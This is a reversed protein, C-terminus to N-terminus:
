KEEEEEEEEEECLILVSKEEQLLVHGTPVFAGDVLTGNALLVKGGGVVEGDVGGRM